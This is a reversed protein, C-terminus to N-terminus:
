RKRSDIFALFAAFALLYGFAAAPFGRLLVAQPFAGLRNPAAQMPHREHPTARAAPPRTARDGLVGTFQPPSAPQQRAQRGGLRGNKLVLHVHM